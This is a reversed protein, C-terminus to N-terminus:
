NSTCHFAKRPIVGLEAMAAKVEPALIGLAAGISTGTLSIGLLHDCWRSPWVECQSPFLLRSCVCHWRSGSETEQCQKETSTRTALPGLGDTLDTDMDPWLNFATTTAARSPRFLPRRLSLRLALRYTVNSRFVLHLNIFCLSKLQHISPMRLAGGLTYILPSFHFEKTLSLNNWLLNQGKWVM